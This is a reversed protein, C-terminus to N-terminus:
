FVLPCDFHRELMEDRHEILIPDLADGVWGRATVWMQRYGDSMPCIEHPMPSVMNSFLTWYIDLATFEDGVFYRSGRDRNARLRQALMSLISKVREIARDPTERPDGYRGLMTQMEPTDQSEPMPQLMKLRMNWAFGDEGCIANALGFMDTRLSEDAPILRPSPELHEALLLIEDWRARPREDDLMAVPASEQFTWERLEPDRQALHQAVPVYDIGKIDFIARAALSWPGPVDRTLVLRLGSMGRAEAVSRYDARQQGQTMTDAM